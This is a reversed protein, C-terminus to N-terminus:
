PIECRLHWHVAKTMLNAGAFKALIWFGGHEVQVATGMIEVIEIDDVAAKENGAARYIWGKRDDGVCYTHAIVEKFSDTAVSTVLHIKRVGKM